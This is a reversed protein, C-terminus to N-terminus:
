VRVRFRLSYFRLAYDYRKAGFVAQEVAVLNFKSPFLSSRDAGTRTNM